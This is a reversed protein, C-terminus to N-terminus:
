EQMNLIKRSNRKLLSDKDRARPQCQLGSYISCKVGVQGLGNIKMVRM